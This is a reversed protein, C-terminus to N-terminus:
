SEEGVAPPLERHSPPPLRGAARRLQLARPTLGLRRAARQLNGDEEGLAVAIATDTAAAGIERLTIGRAVARRIATSFGDSRWDSDRPGIREEEPLEGITIPGPPVHRYAIRTALQRLDRVNGPYSRTLLLETVADDLEPEDGGNTERLFHRILPLIDGERDRLSPLRLTSGAIRFLLDHRFRGAAAEAALDRNTACVLRFSTRRWDNGGVRKYMGEQVVRLLESQLDLPLEGVEDLFLTGGDALAFAGDRSSVAGTFAGREHGFFESGSLTPVITTCDVVVLDRKKRRPDFSHVLRAILEKGTGTEGSILVPADTFCAAEIADRVATRWRASEGILRERVEPSDAIEDVRRWRDLRAAVRAAWNASRDHVFIDSAGAGLLRWPAGGVVAARESAVALIRDVGARVLGAVLDLLSPTVGDFLVIGYGSAAGAALPQTEVGVSHLSRAAAACLRDARSGSVALWVTRAAPM